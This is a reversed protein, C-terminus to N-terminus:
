LMARRHEADTKTTGYVLWRLRQLKEFFAANALFGLSWDEPAELLVTPM